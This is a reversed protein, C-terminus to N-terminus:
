GPNIVLQEPLLAPWDGYHVALFDPASSDMQQITKLPYDTKGTEGTRQYHNTLYEDYPEAEDVGLSDPRFQKYAEFATVIGNSGNPRDKDFANAGACGAELEEIATEAAANATPDNAEKLARKIAAYYNDNISSYYWNGSGTPSGDGVFAKVESTETVAATGLVLGTCYSNSIGGSATGAFGGATAGKVSCTSYCNTASGGSMSGILGGASGSDGTAIVNVRAEGSTGTLYGSHDTYNIPDHKTHGGAYSDTVAVNSASGILGGATAGNVYVAAACNTVKGGTMSGVLGGANGGGKIELASDDALSNRVLVNKIENGSDSLTGFMGADGASEIDLNIVSNGQGDYTLTYGPSVPYYKGASTAPSTGNWLWISPDGTLNSLTKIRSVFDNTAADDDKWILDTTQVAGTMEYSEDGGTKAGDTELNSVAADLNELHRFNNLVATEPTKDGDADLLEAFLSNTRAARSMAINSLVEVSYAVAKIELNEGPIFAGKDAQINAFHMGSATIDDLVVTYSYSDAGATIRDQNQNQDSIVSGKLTFYAEAGSSKGTVILKVLYPKTIDTNPDTVRVMLKEANIIEFSPARLRIGQEEAKEGGYWGVVGGPYRERNKMGGERYDTATGMLTEYDGTGLTKGKATLMSSRGPNSYFVDLVKASSTQYRIIYSGEFTIAYDPLILKLMETSDKDGSVLYFIDDASDLGEIKGYHGYAKQQLYGQSEVSTLHNQAAFFIERAITDFELRTSSRQYNQVAIFSVGMLIGIIAVVVLLEALSFGSNKRNETM